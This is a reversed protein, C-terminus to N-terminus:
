IDNVALLSILGCTDVFVSKTNTRTVASSPRAAHM